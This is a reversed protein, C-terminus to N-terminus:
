KIAATTLNGMSLIQRVGEQANPEDVGVINPAPSWVGPNVSGIKALLQPDTGTTDVV